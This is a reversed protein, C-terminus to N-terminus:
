FESLLLVRDCQESNVSQKKIQADDTLLFLNPDCLYFLQQNDIWDGDHKATNYSANSRAKDFITRQYEYAASWRQGLSNSQESTLQVAVNDLTIECAWDQRSPFPKDGTKAIDLWGRYETRGDSQHAKILTPDLGFRKSGRNRIKVHTNLLEYINNASLIVKTWLKLEAPDFRSKPSQISLVTRLSFDVPFRMFDTTTAKGCMVRFRRQDKKLHENDRAGIVGQMLELLTEPSVVVRYESRIKATLRDVDFGSATSSLKTAVNTDLMLKPKPM